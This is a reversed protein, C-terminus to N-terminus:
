ANECEDDATSAKSESNEIVDSHRRAIHEVM